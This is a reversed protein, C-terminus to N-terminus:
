KEPMDTEFKKSLEVLHIWETTMSILLKLDTIDKDAWKRYFHTEDNGLWTAREAIRKIREDDIFKKIVNGLLSKRINEKDIDSSANMIAYDKILYELSKRYGPGIILSLGFQEAQFSQNYIEIFQPSIEQIIKFFQVRGKSRHLDGRFHFIENGASSYVSYQTIFLAQCKTIPCQFVVQVQNRNLGTQTVNQYYGFRPIPVIGTECYPCTDPIHDFEYTIRKNDERILEIKQM